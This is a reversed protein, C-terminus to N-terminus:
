LVLLFFIFFPGEQHVTGQYRYIGLINYFFVIFKLVKEIEALPVKYHRANVNSSATKLPVLELVCDEPGSKIMLTVMKIVYNILMTVTSKIILHKVLELM